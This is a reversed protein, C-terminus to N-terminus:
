KGTFYWYVLPPTNYRTKPVRRLSLFLLSLRNTIAETLRFRSKCANSRLAQSQRRAEAYDALLRQARSHRCTFEGLEGGNLACFLLRM